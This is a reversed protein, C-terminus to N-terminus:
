PANGQSGNPQTQSSPGPPVHLSAPLNSTTTHMSAQLNSPPGSSLHVTAPLHSSPGPSLRRNVSSPEPSLRMSSSLRSPPGPSLHWTSSLNSPPGPSLCMTAHLNSSPEPSIRMRASLNSPPGPSVRMSGPLNSPPGPSIQMSAPLNSPPGPTVRMSAPLNSPPGPSIRMNASFNSPPGPSKHLSTPLSSPLGLSKHLSAPLKSPPGPSVRMNAPLNLSSGPSVHISAPLSSAQSVPMALNPLSQSQSISLTSLNQPLNQSQNALFAQPSRSWYSGTPFRLPNMPNLRPMAAATRYLNYPSLFPYMLTSPYASQSSLLNQQSAQQAAQKQSQILNMYQQVLASHSQLQQYTSLQTLPPPQAGSLQRTAALLPSQSSLIPTTTSPTVLVQSETTKTAVPTFTSSPLGALASTSSPSSLPPRTLVSFQVARSSVPIISELPGRTPQLDLSTSAQLSQLHPLPPLTDSASSPTDDAQLTELRVPSRPSTARPSHVPTTNTPPIHASPSQPPTTQASPSRPPTTQAPPHHPPTTQASPSHPPTTQAPPIDAPTADSPPTDAPPADQTPRNRFSDLVPLPISISLEMPEEQVDSLPSGGSLTKAVAKPTESPSQRDDKASEADSVESKTSTFSEDSVVNVKLSRRTRAHTSVREPSVERSAKLKGNRRVPSENESSDDSEIESGSDFEEVDSEEKLLERQTQRVTSPRSKRSSGLEATPEAIDRGGTKMREPSKERDRTQTPGRVPTSSTSSSSSSSSNDSESESSESESESLDLKPRKRKSPSSWRVEDEDEDEYFVADNEAEEQPWSQSQSKEAASQESAKQAQSLRREEETKGEEISSCSVTKTSKKRIPEFNSIGLHFLKGKEIMICNRSRTRTSVPDVYHLRPRRDPSKRQPVKRNRKKPKLWTIYGKRQRTSRRIPTEIVAPKKKKERVPTPKPSTVTVTPPPPRKRRSTRTGMPYDRRRRRLRKNSGQATEGEREDADTTTSGGLKSPKDGSAQEEGSANEGEGETEEAGTSPRDVGHVLPSWHLCDPDLEIRNGKSKVKEMHAELVVMDKTIVVNGDDRLRLMNIMQLTAAIDHPDMGTDNSITRISLRPSDNKYLYEMITSKWYSYYSIRGLDSLPKEPSGSQGEVRSLLYSFDILFRGFGQRQYQPMTMICSVNYKQQCSKEKSFYGVLHCGKRDNKTLVYFLFPEVDYYLTKHDLFLKALLCLNQCYIKSAMGDVEFISLDKHRYIENAPPHFWHCKARHRKLISRSKMYKLCFECLYLKPLMAYEQPYPSSYWTKIEYKGFEIMSPSRTSPDMTSGNISSAMNALAREQAKKFLDVDSETVGPPLQPSSPETVEFCDLDDFDLDESNKKKRKQGPIQTPTYADYDSYYGISKRLRKQTMLPVVSTKNVGRKRNPPPVCIPCIWRGEPLTVVPPNLCEMHFGKDCADCILLDDANAAQGCLMCRKCELCLWPEARIREVLPDSYQLCTPHGSNGCEHCSILEEPKKHRNQEATGLCFSCIASPKVKPEPFPDMRFIPVKILRSNKELRGQELNKTITSKIQHHIDPSQVLGHERCIHEEIERLTAGELNVMLVTKKIMRMIDAPHLVGRSVSLSEPDRYSPMGKNILKVIRGAQVAKELHCLAVEASVGFKLLMTNCIREEGPRQKQGKIRRIASLLNQVVDENWDDTSAESSYSRVPARPKRGRPM